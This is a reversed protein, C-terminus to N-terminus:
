KNGNAHLVAAAVLNINTSDLRSLADRLDVPLGEALSAAIQLMSREGGSCPLRGADLATIAEPWDIASMTIGSTPATDTHVFEEVFDARRLWSGQGILLEAGAECAHLGKAQARLAAHLPGTARMM